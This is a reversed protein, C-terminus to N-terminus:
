VVRKIKKFVNKKTIKLLEVLIEYILVCCKQTKQFFKREISRFILIFVNENKYIRSKYIYNSKSKRM